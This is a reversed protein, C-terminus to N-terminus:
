NDAALQIPALLGPNEMGEVSVTTSINNSDLKDVVVRHCSEGSDSEEASSLQGFSTKAKM